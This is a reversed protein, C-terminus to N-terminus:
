RFIPLGKYCGRENGEREKRREELGHTPGLTWDSSFPNQIHFHSMIPVRTSSVSSEGSRLEFTFIFPKWEQVETVFLFPLFDFSSKLWDIKRKTKTQNPFRMMAYIPRGLLM